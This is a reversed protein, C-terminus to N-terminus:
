KTEETGFLATYDAKAQQLRKEVAEVEKQPTRIGSKSKKKFVHLVFIAHEFKAAYVARYTDTDFRETLKMIENARSGEFLTANAPMEGKQVLWLTHGFEKRVQLPMALLDDYASAMFYLEKANLGAEEM